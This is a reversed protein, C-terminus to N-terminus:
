RRSEWLAENREILVQLAQVGINARRGLFFPCDVVRPKM